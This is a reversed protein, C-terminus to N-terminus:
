SYQLFWAEVDPVKITEWKSVADKHDYTEVAGFGTELEGFGEGGGDGL